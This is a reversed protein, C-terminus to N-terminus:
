LWSRRIRAFIHEVGGEGEVVQACTDTATGTGTAAEAADLIAAVGATDTRELMMATTGFGPSRSLGDLIGLCKIHRLVQRGVGTRIVGTGACTSAGVSKGEAVGVGDGTKGAGGNGGEAVGTVGTARGDGDDARDLFHVVSSILDSSPAGAKFAVAVVEAVAEVFIGLDAAAAAAAAAATSGGEEGGEAGAEIATEECTVVLATEMFSEFLDLSADQKAGGIAGNSGNAGSPRLRKEWLAASGKLRM